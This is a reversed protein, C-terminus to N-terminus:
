SARNLEAFLERASVRPGPEALRREAEAIDRRDQATLRRKAPKAAPKVLPKVTGARRALGARYEAEPLLVFPKGDIKLKTVPM